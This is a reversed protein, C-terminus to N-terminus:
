SSPWQRREDLGSMTAAALDEWDTPGIRTLWDPQRCRRVQEARSEPVCVYHRDVARREPGLPQRIRRQRQELADAVKTTKNVGAVDTYWQAFTAASSIFPYAGGSYVPKGTTTDLNPKVLGPHDGNQGTAGPEFDAPTHYRFDRYVVPVQVSDGLPPRTCTFGSEFTCTSSCGDGSLNNGDDCQEGSLVIGDGCKGTCAGAGSPCQPEPRCTASCGDYPETNGDDCGEAGEKKGDGCTTQHCETVPNGTCAWGPNWRCNASCASKEVTIGPDCPENGTLIGDGCDPVCPAKVLPCTYGKEITCTSSCGDGSNINGDDCKENGELIGDGCIAMPCSCKM